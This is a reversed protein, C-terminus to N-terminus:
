CAAAAAAGDNVEEMLQGASGEAIGLAAAIRLLQVPYPVLRGAEIQGIQTPHLQARRALEARSWGRREREATLVKV